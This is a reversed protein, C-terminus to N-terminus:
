KIMSTNVRYIIAAPQDEGTLPNRSKGFSAVPSLYGPPETFLSAAEERTMQGSRIKAVVQNPLRYPPISTQVWQAQAREYTDVEVYDIGREKIKQRFEEETGPIGYSHRPYVYFRTIGPSSAAIRTDPGTNDQIWMGADAVPQTGPAGRAALASGQTYSIFLLPILVLAMVRGPTLVSSDAAESLWSGLDYVVLSALLVIGPIVFVIYRPVKVPSVSMFGIGLGVWLWLLKDYDERPLLAISSLLAMPVLKRFTMFTASSVLVLAAGRKVLSDQDEDLWHLVYQGVRALLLLAVPLTVIVPMNTIFYFTGQVSSTASNISSSSRAIFEMANSLSCLPMKCVALSRLSWPLMTLVGLGIATYYKRDTLTEELDSGRFGTDGLLVESFERRKRYVFYLPILVGLTYAPQKTMVTLAALPGLAYLWYRSGERDSLGVYLALVTATYLAAFTTGILIRESLFWAVPSVAMLAAAVLGLKEDRIEKGLLYTLLVSVVGMVPSVLRIVFESKGFVTTALGLLYPYVPPWKQIQEGMRSYSLFHDSIELALQSYRGEDVWMGEFFAYQLRLFTAVGLIALLILFYRDRAAEKVGEVLDDKM